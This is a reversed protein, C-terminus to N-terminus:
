GGRGDASPLLWTRVWVRHIRVTHDTKTARLRGDAIAREVTRVHVRALAAVERKTLWVHGDLLEHEIRASASDDLSM